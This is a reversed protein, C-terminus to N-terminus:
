AEDTWLDELPALLAEPTVLLEPTLTMKARWDNPQTAVLRAVEQNNRQIIITEGAAAKDLYDFLHNRLQTATVRIM